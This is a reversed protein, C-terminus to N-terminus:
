NEERYCNIIVVLNHFNNPVDIWGNLKWGRVSKWGQIYLCLVQFWRLNQLAQVVGWGGVGGRKNTEERIILCPPTSTIIHHHLLPISDGLPKACSYVWKQECLSNLPSWLTRYNSSGPVKGRPVELPPPSPCPGGPAKSKFHAWLGATKTLIAPASLIKGLFNFGKETM